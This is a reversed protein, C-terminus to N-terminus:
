AGGSSRADGVAVSTRRVPACPMPQREVAVWGPLADSAVVLRAGDAPMAETAARDLGTSRAGCVPWAASVRGSDSSHPKPGIQVAGYLPTTQPLRADLTDPCALLQRESPWRPPVYARHPDDHAWPVGTVCGALHDASRLKGDPAWQHRPWNIPPPGTSGGHNGDDATRTNWEAPYWQSCPDDVSAVATPAYPLHSGRLVATPTAGAAQVDGPRDCQGVSSGDTRMARVTHTLDDVTTGTGAGDAMPEHPHPTGSHLLSAM